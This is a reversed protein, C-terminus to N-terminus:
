AHRARRAREDIAGGDCGPPPGVRDTGQCKDSTCHLVVKYWHAHFWDWNTASSNPFDTLTGDFLNALPPVGKELLSEGTISVGIPLDGWDEQIQVGVDWNSGPPSYGQALLYPHDAPCQYAPVYENSHAGTLIRLPFATVTCDTDGPDSCPAVFPNANSGDGTVGSPGGIGPPLPAGRLRKSPLVRAHDMRCTRSVSDTASAYILLRRLGRACSVRDRRGYLVVESGSGRVLVTADASRDILMDAGAGGVLTARPGGWVWAKGSGLRVTVNNGPAFVYDQKGGGFVTENSGLAAIYNTRHPVGFLWAGNGTAVITDGGVRAGPDSAVIREALRVNAAQARAQACLVLALALVGGVIVSAVVRRSGAGAPEVARAWARSRRDVVINSVRAPM